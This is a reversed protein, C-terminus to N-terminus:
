MPSARLTENLQRAPTASSPRPALSGLFSLPSFLLSLTRSVFLSFVFILFWCFVFGRPPSVFTCFLSLLSPLRLLCCIFPFPSFYFLNNLFIICYFPFVLSSLVYCLSSILCISPSPLCILSSLLSLLSPRFGYTWLRGPTPSM